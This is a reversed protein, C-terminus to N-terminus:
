VIITRKKQQVTKEYKHRIEVQKLSLFFFQHHEANPILFLCKM